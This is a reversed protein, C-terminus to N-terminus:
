SGEVCVIEKHAPFFNFNAKDAKVLYLCLHRYLVGDLHGANSVTLQIFLGLFKVLHPEIFGIHTLHLFSIFHLFFPTHTCTQSLTLALDIIEPSRYAHLHPFSITVPNLSCNQTVSCGKLNRSDSIMLSLHFMPGEFYIICYGDDLM